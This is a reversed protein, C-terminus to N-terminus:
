RLVVLIAIPGHMCGAVYLYRARRKTARPLLRAGYIASIPIDGHFRCSFIMFTHVYRTSVRGPVAVFLTCTFKLKPGMIIPDLISRKKCWVTPAPPNNVYCHAQYLNDKFINAKFVNTQIIIYEGQIPRCARMCVRVCVHLQTCYM